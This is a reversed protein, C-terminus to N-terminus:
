AAALRYGDGSSGTRPYSAGGTTVIVTKATMAGAETAVIFLEGDRHIARVRCNEALDAGLRVTRRRLATTVDAARGSAAFIRGGREAVTAIGEEALLALLDDRFFRAFAQRLFNGNIGFHSIAEAITATNTLNGRGKGSISLKRGAQPMKELLSVQAGTAAAFAAAMLGSAGAGVIVVDCVPM